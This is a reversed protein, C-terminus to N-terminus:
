ETFLVILMVMNYSYICPAAMSAVLSVFVSFFDLSLIKDECHDMNAFHCRCSHFLFSNWGLYIILADCLGINLLFFMILSVM